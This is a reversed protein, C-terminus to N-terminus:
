RETKDMVNSRAENPFKTSTISTFRHFTVIKPIGSLTNKRIPEDASSLTVLMNCKNGKEDNNPFTQGGPASVAVNAKTDPTPVNALVKPLKVPLAIMSQTPKFVMGSLFPPPHSKPESGARRTTNDIMRGRATPIGAIKPNMGFM